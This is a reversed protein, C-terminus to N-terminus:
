GSTIRIKYLKKQILALGIWKWSGPFFVGVGKPESAKGRSAGKQLPASV